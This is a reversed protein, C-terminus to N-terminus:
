VAETPGIYKSYLYKNIKNNNNLIQVTICDDGKYIYKNIYKIAKISVYVKINIYACYKASLYLNYLVVYRNNFNIITSNRGLIYIPWSRLDDRRWYQPYSNKHV